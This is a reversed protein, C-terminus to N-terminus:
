EALGDIRRALEFDNDTLGGVDHTTSQVIVRPYTLTVDPHHNLQEAVVAIRTVFGLGALFNKTKFIKEIGPKGGMDTRRWGPLAALRENVQTQTLEAM